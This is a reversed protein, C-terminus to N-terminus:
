TAPLILTANFYFTFKYVGNWDDESFQPPPPPFGILKKEPVAVDMDEVFLCIHLYHQTFAWIILSYTSLM